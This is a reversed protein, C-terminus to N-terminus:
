GRGTGEEEAETKGLMLTKELYEIVFELIVISKINYKSETPKVLAEYFFQIKIFSWESFFFNIQISVIFLVIVISHILLRKGSKDNKIKIILVKSGRYQVDNFNALMTLIYM